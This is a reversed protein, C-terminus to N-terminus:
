EAALLMLSRAVEYETRGRLAKKTEKFYFPLPDKSGLAAIVDREDYPVTEHMPERPVFKIAVSTAAYPSSYSDNPALHSGRVDPVLKELLTAHTAWADSEAAVASWVTGGAGYGLPQTLQFTQGVTQETEM